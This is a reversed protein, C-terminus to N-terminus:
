SDFVDPMGVQGDVQDFEITCLVFALLVGVSCAVRLWSSKWVHLWAVM